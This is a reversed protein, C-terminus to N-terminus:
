WNLRNKLVEYSNLLINPNPREMYTLIVLIRWRFGTAHQLMTFDNILQVKMSQSIRQSFFCKTGTTIENILCSFQKKRALSKLIQYSILCQVLYSNLKVNILTMVKLVHTEWFQVAVIVWVKTGGVTVFVKVTALVVINWRVVVRVVVWVTVFIAVTRLMVVSVGEVTVLVIFWVNVRTWGGDVIVDVTKWFWVNRLTNICFTVLVAVLVSVSSGEGIVLVNVWVSLIVCDGKVMVEM